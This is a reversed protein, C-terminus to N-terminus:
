MLLASQRVTQAVPEASIGRDEVQELAEGMRGELELGNYFVVDADVLATVDSERPRYLHPDVGPGMLGTVEVRDGGIERALDALMSTTTVVRIDRDALSQDSGEGGCGSALLAMLFACSAALPRRFPFRTM